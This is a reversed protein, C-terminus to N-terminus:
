HVHDEPSPITSLVRLAGLIEGMVVAAQAAQLELAAIREM